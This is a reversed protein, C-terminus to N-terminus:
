TLPFVAAFFWAALIAGFTAAATASGTRRRVSDCGLRQLISVAAFYIVMILILIQGSAFSYYAFLCALWLIARLLLFFGFRLARRGRLRIEPPAGLAIEEIFFYPWCLPLLFVFRLWRATNLWADTLQWNLWAGFALMTVLGLLIAMLLARPQFDLSAWAVKASLVWVVIAFLLFLSVLYDATYMHLLRLPVVFNLVCVSLLAALVWRLLAHRAPVESVFVSTDTGRSAFATTLLSAAAPFILLLGCVGLLSGLRPGGRGSPPESNLQWATDSANQEPPKPNLADSIWKGTHDAVRSDFLLSTHSAHLVRELDFARRQQFDQWNTRDGGASRELERAVNKLLTLDFQASFVLLNTPMRKPLVLPGPSIAITAATPFRDALRIAIAGGMSHGVLITKDPRIEGRKALTEIAEAACQESRAITFQDTSDGHGPLDILYVRQVSALLREGIWLMLRRNASLGHIVIASAYPKASLDELLTVPSKCGDALLFDRRTGLVTSIKWAGLALLALGLTTFILERRKM